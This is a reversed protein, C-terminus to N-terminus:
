ERERKKYCLIMSILWILIVVVIVFASLIKQEFDHQLARKADDLSLFNSYSNFAASRLCATGKPHQKWNDQCSRSLIETESFCVYCSKHKGQAQCIDLDEKLQVFKIGHKHKLKHKKASIEIVTENLNLEVYTEDTLNGSLCYNGTFNYHNTPIHVLFNRFKYSSILNSRSTANIPTQNFIEKNLLGLIVLGSILTVIAQPLTPKYKAM